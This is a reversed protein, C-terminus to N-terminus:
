WERALIFKLSDVLKDFETAKTLFHVAGLQNMEEKDANGIFTSYMIVPIDRLGEKKKLEALVQKGNLRPMNMDLFILDPRQFIDGSLTKLADEGDHACFCQITNDIEKIAEIFIERDDADDDALFVVKYLNM